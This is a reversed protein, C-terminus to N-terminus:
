CIVARNGTKKARPRVPRVQMFCLSFLCILPIFSFRSQSNVKGPISIINVVFTICLNRYRKEKERDRVDDQVSRVFRAGARGFGAPM